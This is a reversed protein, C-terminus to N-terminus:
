FLALLFLYEPTKILCRSLDLDLERFNNGDRSKSVAILCSLSLIKILDTLCHVYQTVWLVTM